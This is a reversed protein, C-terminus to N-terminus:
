RIEKGTGIYHGEQVAAVTAAACTLAILVASLRWPFQGVYLPVAFLLAGCLKNLVTHESVLRKAIVFGSVLNFYKLVAICVIWVILWVPMEVARAVKVIAVAFFAIDAVTDLRAGLETEGGWRRAVIGDLADSIGGLLYVVYFWLSFIPCFLLGVACVIRIGTIGNAAAFGSGKRVFLIKKM